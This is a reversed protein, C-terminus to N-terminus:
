EEALPPKTRIQASLRAMLGGVGVGALLAIVPVLPLAYRQWPLPNALLVLVNAALWVAIGAARVGGMSSYPRPRGRGSIIVTVGVVALGWVIWGAWAPLGALGSGEYANIQAIIDPEDGWSAVEYHSPGGFPQAVMFWAREALSMPAGPDNFVQVDIIETRIALLDGFRALPDNWMAPSLGVWLAITVLGAVLAAGTTQLFPRWRRVRRATLVGAFFVWGWAGVLYVVGTHKSAMALAGCVVLGAWLLPNARQQDTVRAAITAAVLITLLGFAVLYAESTARRVNLLLPANLGLLIVAPYAVARGGVRRALAFMALLAVAWFGMSPARATNLVDKRPLWSAAVNESYTLGWNWGPPIPLDAETYGNADLTFGIVHRNVNGNLLRLHPRSDIFYPPETTLSAWDGRVFADFYDTSAYIFMGEDGHYTALPMGAVAYAILAALLLGDALWWLGRRFPLKSPM